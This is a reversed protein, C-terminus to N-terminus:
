IDKKHIILGKLTFNLYETYISLQEYEICVNSFHKQELYQLM